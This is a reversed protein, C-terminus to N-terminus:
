TRLSLSAGRARELGYAPGYPAPVEADEPHASLMRDMDREPGNPRAKEPTHGDNYAAATVLVKGREVMSQTSDAAVVSELPVSGPRCSSGFISISLFVALGIGRRAMWNRASEVM